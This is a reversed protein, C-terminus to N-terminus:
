TFAAAGSSAGVLKGRKIISRVVPVGIRLLETLGGHVIVADMLKGPELSGARDALDLSWAANITAAVLAEELTMHMGFCALAIAFPMSPSLGGGPNIDTALAVPVHRDILLRAPAFRGLKLYFAATPLLVACVGARSLADAGEEDVHILHDASRAGATVAVRCGGSSALEDAHLRPRLGARSGAELIAISDEVSFYGRDCFVDCWDALHEAAVRPIMENIITSVYDQRRERFEPPVDHAGLFTPVVDIAHEADLRRIARLQTLESETSLGYGSKVECTTTGAALMADLRPRAAEVLQDESAARTAMVTSLIGGGSAAIDEYSAGGLRRRLEDDRNGAYVAHTHPDVFGPVVTCGSADVRTADAAIDIATAADAAPGAYVIVGDHSAVLGDRLTALQRQAPGRRPAPGACTAILDAHEIVFDAIPRV